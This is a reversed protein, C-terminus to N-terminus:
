KVDEKESEPTEPHSEVDKPKRSYRRYNQKDCHNRQKCAIDSFLDHAEKNLLYIGLLNASCRRLYKFSKILFYTNLVIAITIVALLTNIVMFNGVFTEIM